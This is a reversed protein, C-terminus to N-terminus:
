PEGGCCATQQQPLSGGDEVECIDFFIEVGFLDELRKSKTSNRLFDEVLFGNSTSCALSGLLGLLNIKLLPSLLRFFDVDSAKSCCSLVSVTAAGLEGSKWLLNTEQEPGELRLGQLLMIVLVEEPGAQLRALLPCFM